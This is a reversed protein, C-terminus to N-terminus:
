VWLALMLRFRTVWEADGNSCRASFMFRRRSLELGTRGHFDGDGGGGTDLASDLTLAVPDFRRRCM